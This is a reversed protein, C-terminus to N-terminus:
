IDYIGSRREKEMEDICNVRYHFPKGDKEVVVSEVLNPHYDELAQVCGAESKWTDTVGIFAGQEGTDAMVFYIIMFWKM